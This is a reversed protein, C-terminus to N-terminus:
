FPKINALNVIFNDYIYKVQNCQLSSSPSNKNTRIERTRYVAGCYDIAEKPTLGFIIMLLLCVMLGTRGHGAQCHIYVTINPTNLIRMSLELAFRFTKESDVTEGDVIPLHMFEDPELLQHYPPYLSHQDYEQCMNAMILRFTSNRERIKTILRLNDGDRDNDPYAGAIIEFLFSSGDVLVVRNSEPTVGKYTKKNLTMSKPPINSRLIKHIESWTKGSIINERTDSIKATDCEKSESNDSDTCIIHQITNTEM